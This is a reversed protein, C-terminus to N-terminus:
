SRKPCKYQKIFIVCVAQPFVTFCRHNGNICTVAILVLGLTKSVAVVVASGPGLVAVIWYEIQVFCVKAIWLTKARLLM